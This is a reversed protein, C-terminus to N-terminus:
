PGTGTAEPTGATSPKGRCVMPSRARVTRPSPLAMVTRRDRIAQGQAGAVGANVIRRYMSRASIQLAQQRYVDRRSPRSKRGPQRGAKRESTGDDEADRGWHAPACGHRGM